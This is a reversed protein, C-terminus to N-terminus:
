VIARHTELLQMCERLAGRKMVCSNAIRFLAANIMRDKDTPPLQQMCIQGDMQIRTHMLQKQMFTCAGFLLVEDDVRVFNCCLPIIYFDNEHVCRMSRESTKMGDIVAVLARLQRRSMDSYRFVYGYNNSFPMLGEPTFAPVLDSANAAVCLKCLDSITHGGNRLLSQLTHVIHEATFFESIWEDRASCPALVAPSGAPEGARAAHGSM